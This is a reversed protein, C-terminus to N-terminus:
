RCLPDPHWIPAETGVMMVWKKKKTTSTICCPAPRAAGGLM